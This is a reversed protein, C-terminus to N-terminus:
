RSSPQRSTPRKELVTDAETVACIMSTMTTEHPEQMVLDGFCNFDYILNALDLDARM